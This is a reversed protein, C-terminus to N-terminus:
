QMAKSTKWCPLYNMYAFLEFPILLSNYILMHTDDNNNVTTTLILHTLAQPM